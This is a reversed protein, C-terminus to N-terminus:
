KYQYIGVIIILLAVTLWGLWEIYKVILPEISPGAKAVLLSVLFFRMGRGAASAIVFPIFAMSLLGASITFLKYPIPSFGAVLIAWIGWRDFLSKVQEFKQGYGWNEILPGLWEYAWTGLLYGAIGGLVSTFTTWTALRWWSAPKSLTMPILMVDPPPLPLLASELFSVVGLYYKAYKHRSYEIVKKYINSFLKM